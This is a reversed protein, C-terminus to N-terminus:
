SRRLKSLPSHADYNSRARDGAVSRAYRDVMQRSRWGALQMLDGENGGSALYANAFSHRFSHCHIHPLRAARARRQVIQEIGFLSVAGREGLWLAPSEAYRHEARRRLYRDLTRAMDASYRTVRLRDGKGIVSVTRTAQDIDALMIGAMEARRIGSDYFLSLVATDRRDAFTTGDCTRLLAQMQDVTVIPPPNDAIAPPKINRLPSTQVEGEAELYKWLQQLSRYRQNRTADALGRRRLDILFEEIHERSINAVALPMGQAQLFANLQDSAKSYALITNPSKGEADLHRAFARANSLLDDATASVLSTRRSM